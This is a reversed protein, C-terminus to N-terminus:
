DDWGFSFGLNLQWNHFLGNGDIGPQYVGNVVQASLPLGYSPVGSVQDKLDFALFVQEVIRYKFGGGWNFTFKWSDRLALGQALAADKSPQDIYFLTAGAGVKAYPRFRQLPLGLYSVDYSFRNASQSLSLSPIDPSLNTITLPQNAFSYEMGGSWFDGRNEFVRVGVQFGSAYSMGVTRSTELSSGSVRTPFQFNSSLSGGGFAAAEFDSQPSYGSQAFLPRCLTLAIAFMLFRKFM